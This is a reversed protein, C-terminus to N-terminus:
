KTPPVPNSGTVGPKYPRHEGASSVAGGGFIGAWSKASAGEVRTKFTVKKTTKLERFLRHFFRFREGLGSTLPAGSSSGDAAGRKRANWRNRNLSAQKRFNLLRASYFSETGAGAGIDRIYPAKIVTASGPTLDGPLM